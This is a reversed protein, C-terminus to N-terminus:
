VVVFGKYISQPNLFPYNGEIYPIIKGYNNRIDSSVKLQFYKQIKSLKLDNELKEGARDILKKLPNYYCIILTVSYIRFFLVFQLLSVITFKFRSIM